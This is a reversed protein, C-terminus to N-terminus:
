ATIRNVALMAKMSRIQFRHDLRSSGLPKPNCHSPIQVSWLKAPVLQSLLKARVREQLDWASRIVAQINLKQLACSM